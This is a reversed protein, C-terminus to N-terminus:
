PQAMGGAFGLKYARGLASRGHAAAETLEKPDAGEAFGVAPADAHDHVAARRPKIKINPRNLLFQIAAFRALALDGGGAFLVVPDLDEAAQEIPHGQARGDGHHHAVLVLPRLIVLLHLHREAGGM